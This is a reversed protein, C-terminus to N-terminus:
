GSDVDGVVRVFPRLIFVSRTSVVIAINAPAVTPVLASSSRVVSTMVLEFAGALSNSTYSM